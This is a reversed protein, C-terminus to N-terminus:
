CPKRGTKESQVRVDDYFAQSVIRPREEYASNVM